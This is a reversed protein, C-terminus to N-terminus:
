AATLLRVVADRLLEKYIDSTFTTTGLRRQHGDHSLALVKIDPILNTALAILTEAM